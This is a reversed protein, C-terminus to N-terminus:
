QRFFLARTVRTVYAIGMMTRIIDVSYLFGGPHSGMRTNLECFQAQNPTFAISKRSQSMTSKENAIASYRTNPSEVLSQGGSM